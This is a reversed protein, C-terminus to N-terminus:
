RLLWRPLLPLLFLRRYFLYVFLLLVAIHAPWLGVLPTLKGRVVWSQLISLVNNYIIYVLLALILNASRGARPDVFSLPIALLVLLFASIPMSLRWQLEANNDPTHEQFLEPSSKSKPSPPEQKAEAPEIRLMYREFEMIGYEPTNPTGEYRRGNILTLFTDGNKDTDHSGEKAVIIGLKQHQISQAFINNIKNQLLSFSEVFYVREANKSEKFVGPVLTSLEDRREMQERFDNGKQTAWPVVFLSLLAIIAIVPLAFTLLPRILAYVGQGSTFWIVMESDRHWRSLTMLVAIFLTLALLLPLFRLMSFGLLAAIADSAVGGRAALGLYYTIRQAVMIGLLVLFSSLATVFLEQLLSRKFIM